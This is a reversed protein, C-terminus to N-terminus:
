ASNPPPRQENDEEKACCNVAMLEIKDRSKLEAHSCSLVLRIDLRPWEAYTHLNNTRLRRTFRSTEEFLRFTFDSWKMGVPDMYMGKRISVTTPEKGSARTDPETTIRRRGM